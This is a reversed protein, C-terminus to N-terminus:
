AEIPLIRLSEIGRDDVVKVAVKRNPGPEFPLSVTGHYQELLEENLEARITKKLKMWGDKSGAMPFFVQRPYLSRDDYDTDLLWMAVKKTGGHIHEGDKTDFYDYGLVELEYRGDPLKRLEVQPQGVLWFSQNSSRAKKLDDTLLDTNMQAKLLTVGPWKTEDIDKAAEPDFVFAAFVVYRPKPVLMTAENIAHAVARQELSAHAPGFCVAVHEGTDALTGICHIYVTGSMTSLEAFRIMQGNKGRIGTKQLEDRWQHQRASEGSRAITTDAEAPQQADDLSLVTPTPVAEVSFPGSIRLKKKDPEPQDFLTEQDAHASISLDMEKQLAFRAVHFADFSEHAASPWPEPFVFPVEWELLAGAPAEVGNPLKETGGKKFDIAKGKRGGEMVKFAAPPAKRLAANLKELAALVAPHMREYIEDIEPNNAISKLTVHPVTKYIFGGKLGEHPHKLAYYDFSETLMRQKALTIAIRSTDCTIWRRGWQEAVYATTGSGCTIDLVIDSPETTMLMCREMTRESTQVAYRRGFAPGTDAWMATIRTVPYDDHYARFGISGGSRLVRGTKIMRKMGTETTSWSGNTSPPFVEGQFDADFAQGQRYQAPIMNQVTYPREHGVIAEPKDRTNFLHNVKVDSIDKAYWVMFDFMQEITNSGFPMLKTRFPIIAVFNEPGFVEDMLERVHHLNEDSIQVFVSGREHLLDKALLLRDRLYALYSHIGLEWTDRFAKIMEPELTLDEDKDSDPVDRKNVFPQFNSKYKIGYPPDIMVMQVQGAMSEKQLLSNMVLLSDGLVLRNSWGKDHKYFDIAERLPLQEFPAAFLDGQRGKGQNDDEMRKRVASLISAPDIREHVHLSVTDVEFSTREAKGTWQLYPAQLRRLEELAARMVKEDKSALADDIITEIRARNASSDFQLAPDLHPDYAYKTKPDDPDSEPSVMGVEPNNVRRQDHRYSLIAADGENDDGRNTRKEAKPKKEKVAKPEPSKLELDSQVVRYLSGGRGRGAAVLKSNLLGEKAATYRVEDWGLTERLKGNGLAGGGEPLLNYLAQEDPKLDLPQSM